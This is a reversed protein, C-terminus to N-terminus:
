RPEVPHWTQVTKGYDHTFKNIYRLIASYHREWETIYRRERRFLDYCIGTRKCICAVFTGYAKMLYYNNTEHIEATCRGWVICTSDLDSNNLWERVAQFFNDLCEANIKAQKEKKM